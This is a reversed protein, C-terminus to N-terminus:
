AETKKTRKKKVIVLRPPGTIRAFLKQLKEDKSPSPPPEIEETQNEAGAPTTEEASEPALAQRQQPTLTDVGDLLAEITDNSPTDRTGKSTPTVPSAGYPNEVDIEAVPSTATKQKKPGSPSSDASLPAYPPRKRKGTDGSFSAARTTDAECEPTKHDRSIMSGDM